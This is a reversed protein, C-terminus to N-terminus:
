HEGDVHPLVELLPQEPRPRVLSPDQILQGASAGVGGLLVLLSALFIWRSLRM